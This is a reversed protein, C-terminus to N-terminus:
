GWKRLFELLVIRKQPKLKLYLSLLERQDEAMSELNYPSQEEKAGPVYKMEGRGTALWEFRVGLIISLRSLREVTPTNKGSEWLSASSPKVGMRRSLEAPTIGAAERALKIRENIMWDLKYM